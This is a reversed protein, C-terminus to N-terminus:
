SSTMAFTMGRKKFVEAFTAAHRCTREILEVVGHKGLSLLAAWIEVARVRAICHSLGWNCPCGNRTPTRPYYSAAIPM